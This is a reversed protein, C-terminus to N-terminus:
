HNCLREAIAMEVSTSASLDDNTLEHNPAASAFWVRDANELVAAVIDADARGKLCVALGDWYQRQHHVYTSCAARDRQKCADVLDQGTAIQSALAFALITLM